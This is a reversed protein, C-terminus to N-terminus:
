DEYDVRITVKTIASKDTIKQRSEAIVAYSQAANGTEHRAITSWKGSPTPPLAKFKGFAVTLAPVSTAIELTVSVTTVRDGNVEKLYTIKAKCDDDSVTFQSDTGEAPAGHAERQKAYLTSGSELLQIQDLICATAGKKQVSMFQINCIMLAWLLFRM